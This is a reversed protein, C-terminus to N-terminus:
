IKRKENEGKGNWEMSSSSSSCECHFDMKVWNERSVHLFLLLVGYVIIYHIKVVGAPAAAAAAREAGREKESERYVYVDFAMGSFIKSMGEKKSKVEDGMM